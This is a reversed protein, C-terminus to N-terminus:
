LDRREMHTFNDPVGTSKNWNRQRACLEGRAIYQRLSYMLRRLKRLSTCKPAEDVRQPLSIIWFGWNKRRSYSNGNYVYTEENDLCDFSHCVVVSLFEFQASRLLVCHCLWSLFLIWKCLRKGLMVWVQKGYSKRASLLM